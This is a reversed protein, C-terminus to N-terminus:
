TLPAVLLHDGLSLFLEGENLKQAIELATYGSVDVREGEQNAYSTVDDGHIWGQFSFDIRPM